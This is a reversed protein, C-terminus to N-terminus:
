SIHGLIYLEPSIELFINKGNDQQHAVAPFGRLLFVASRPALLNGGILPCIESFTARCAYNISIPM